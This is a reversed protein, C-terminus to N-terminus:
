LESDRGFDRTRALDIGELPAAALLAKLGPVEAVGFRERLLTRVERETTPDCLASVVERVLTADTKRVHVELRVMGHQKLRRRYNSVAKKQAEAM